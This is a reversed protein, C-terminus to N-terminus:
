FDSIIHHHHVRWGTAVPIVTQHLRGSAAVYPGQPGAQLRLYYASAAFAGTNDPGEVLLNTVHHKTVRRGDELPKPQRAVYMDRITAPDSLETAGVTVTAGALIQMVADIDCRDCADFYRAFHELLSSHVDASNMM